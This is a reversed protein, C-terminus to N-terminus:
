KSVNIMTPISREGGYSVSDISYFEILGDKHEIAVNAESEMERKMLEKILEQVKM